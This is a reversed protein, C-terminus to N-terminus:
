ISLACHTKLRTPTQFFFFGGMTSNRSQRSYNCAVKDARLDAPWTAQMSKLLGSILWRVPPQLQAMSCRHSDQNLRVTQRWSAKAKVPTLLRLKAATAWMSFHLEDGTDHPWCISAM